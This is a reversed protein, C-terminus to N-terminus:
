NRKLPISIKYASTEAIEDDRMLSFNKYIEPLTKLAEKAKEITEYATIHVLMVNFPLELTWHYFYM